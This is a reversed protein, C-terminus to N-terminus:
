GHTLSGVLTFRRHGTGSDDSRCLFRFPCPRLTKLARPSEGHHFVKGCNSAVSHQRQKLSTAENPQEPLSGLLQRLHFRSDPGGSTVNPRPLPSQKVQIDTGSGSDMLTQRFSPTRFAHIVM